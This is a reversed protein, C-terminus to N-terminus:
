FMGSCCGDFGNCSNGTLRIIGGSLCIGEYCQGFCGLDYRNWGNQFIGNRRTNCTNYIPTAVLSTAIVLLTIIALLVSVNHKMLVKRGVAESKM